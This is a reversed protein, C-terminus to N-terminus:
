EEDKKLATRLKNKAKEIAASVSKYTRGTMTVIEGYSRGCLYPSFVAYENDTLTKKVLTFLEETELTDEDEHVPEDVENTGDIDVLASWIRDKRALTYMRNRVCTTVFGTFNQGRTRDFDAIAKLLAITGEQVYDATDGYSLTVRRAVSLIFPTYRAILTLKAEDSGAKAATLLEDGHGYTM